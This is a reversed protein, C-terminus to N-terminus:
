LAVRRETGSRSSRGRVEEPILLLQIPVLTLIALEQDLEGTISSLGAAYAKGPRDPQSGGPSWRKIRHASTRASVAKARPVARRM